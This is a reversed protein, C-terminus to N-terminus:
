PPTEGWAIGCLEKAEATHIWECFQTGAPETSPVACAGLRRECLADDARADKLQKKVSDECTTRSSGSPTCECIKNGLEECPTTCAALLAAALALSLLRPRMPGPLIARAAGSTL